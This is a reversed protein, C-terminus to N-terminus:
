PKERWGTLEWEPETFSAMDHSKKYVDYIKFCMGAAQQETYVRIVSEEFNDKSIKGAEPEKKEPAFRFLGALGKSKKKEEEKKKEKEKDGLFHEIDDAIQKLSEETTAEVMKLADNFDQKEMEKRFAKLEDDNLAFAKFKVNVKGGYVYGGQQTRSPIARFVFDVFICAHYKRKMKLDRFARPLTGAEAEDKVKIEKTGLISLELIVSNFANVLAPESLKQEKMSLQEAARLYPKAWRTYLKLANTQSKLYSKEIEFRKRLESESRDLWELFEALRPKLIRKVRDNLDMRDIDEPKRAIMFADRLTTFGIEQSMLNISGRGKQMDVKDMWIQKLGLFGADKEKQEKSKMMDYQKLRIEFEKLDYILNIISKIVVNVSGLIKMGEEQMKTARAGLEAFFGGGATAAFNDVPKETKFGLDNMFDLIWFYVPELQEAPSDYTMSHEWMALPKAIEVAKSFGEAKIKKAIEGANEAYRPQIAAVIEIPGTM